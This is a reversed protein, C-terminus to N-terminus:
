LASLAAENEAVRSDYAVVAGKFTASRSLLAGLGDYCYCGISLYVGKDDNYGLQGSYSGVLKGDCFFEAFGHSGRSVLFVASLSVFRDTTIPSTFVTTSVIGSSIKEHQYRAAFSFKDGAAYFALVPNRGSEGSDPIDKLEALLVGESSQVWSNLRFRATLTMVRGYPLTRESYNSQSRLAGATQADSSSVAFEIAKNERWVRGPIGADTISSRAITQGNAQITTATNLQVAGSSDVLRHRPTIWVFGQEIIRASKHALDEPIEGTAAFRM